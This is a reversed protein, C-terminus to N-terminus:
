RGKIENIGVRKVTHFRIFGFERSLTSRDDTTSFFFITTNAKQRIDYYSITGMAMSKSKKKSHVSVYIRKDNATKTTKTV